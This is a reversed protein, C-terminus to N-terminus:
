VDRERFDTYAIAGILFGKKPSVPEFKVQAIVNHEALQKRRKPSWELEIKPRTNPDCSFYDIVYTIILSDHATDYWCGIKELSQIYRYINDYYWDRNKYNISNQCLAM